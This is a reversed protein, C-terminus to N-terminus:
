SALAVKEMIIMEVNQARIDRVVKEMDARRAQFEEWSEGELRHLDIFIDVYDCDPCRYTLFRVGELGLQRREAEMERSDEKVFDQPTFQRNCHPCLRIM